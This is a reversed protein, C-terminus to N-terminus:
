GGGCLATPSLSLHDIPPHKSLTIFCTVFTLASIYNNAYNEGIVLEM